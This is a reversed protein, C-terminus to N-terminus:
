NGVLKAPGSDLIERIKWALVRREFPKQVFALGEELPGHVGECVAGDAYGSLSTSSRSRRSASREPVALGIGPKSPLVRAITAEAGKSLVNAKATGQDESNM